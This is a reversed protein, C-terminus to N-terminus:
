RILTKQYETMRTYCILFEMCYVNKKESSNQCQMTKLPKITYDFTSEPQNKSDFKDNM